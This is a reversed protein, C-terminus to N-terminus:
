AGNVAEWAAKGAAYGAEYERRDTDCVTETKTNPQQGNWGRILGHLYFTGYVATAWETIHFTTCNSPRPPNADLWLAAIICAAKGFDDFFKNQIPKMGTREFVAVVEAPEITRRSLSTM